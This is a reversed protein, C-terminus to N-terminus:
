SVAQSAMSTTLAFSTLWFKRHFSKEHKRGFILKWQHIETPLRKKELLLYKPFKESTNTVYQNANSANIQM